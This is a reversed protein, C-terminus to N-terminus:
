RSPAAPGALRVEGEGALTGLFGEPLTLRRTPLDPLDREDLDPWVRLGTGAAKALAELRTWALVDDYSPGGVHEIDVGIPGEGWAVAVLGDTNPPRAYSLSAHLASGVLRPQGHDASGCVPCLRVVRTAGTAECLLAEAAARLEARLEAQATLAAAM